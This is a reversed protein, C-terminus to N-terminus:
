TLIICQRKMPEKEQKLYMHLNQMHVKRILNEVSQDRGFLEAMQSQSLWVTNNELKVHLEIYGDPSRYIEIQNKGM